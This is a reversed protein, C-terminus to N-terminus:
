QSVLFDGAGLDINSYYQMHNSNDRKMKLNMNM